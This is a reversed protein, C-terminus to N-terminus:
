TRSGSAASVNRSGLLPGLILMVTGINRVNENTSTVCSHLNSDEEECV